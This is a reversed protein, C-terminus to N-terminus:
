LDNSVVKQPFEKVNWDPEIRILLVPISKHEYLVKCEVRTYLVPYMNKSNRVKM